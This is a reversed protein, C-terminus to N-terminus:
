IRSHNEKLIRDYAIQVQQLIDNIQRIFALYMYHVCTMYNQSLDTYLFYNTMSYLDITIYKCVACMLTQCSFQMALQNVANNQNAGFGLVTKNKLIWSYSM